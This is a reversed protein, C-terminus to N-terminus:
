IICITKLEITVANIAMEDDLPATFSINIYRLLRLMFRFGINGQTLYEKIKDATIEVINNKTHVSVTKTGAQSGSDELIM